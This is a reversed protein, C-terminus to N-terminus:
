EVSEWDAERVGYEYDAQHKADEVTMHWTDWIQRGASDCSLLYCAGGAAEVIEM